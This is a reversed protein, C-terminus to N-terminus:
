AGHGILARVRHEYETFAHEFVTTARALDGTILTDFHLGYYADILMRTELEADKATIGMGILAKTGLVNWREFPARAFESRGIERTELLAGEFALRQMQLNRPTLSLQWSSRIKEFHRDLDLRGPPTEFVYLQYNAVSELVERVLEARSGFHYVLTYASVGLGDALTRFSVSALSKDLLYDIVEALLAPKRQPDRPRSVFILM